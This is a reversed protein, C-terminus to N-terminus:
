PVMKRFKFNFELFGSLFFKWKRKANSNISQKNVLGLAHDNGNETM